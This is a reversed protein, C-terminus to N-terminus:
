QDVVSAVVQVADPPHDPDCSGDPESVIEGIESM